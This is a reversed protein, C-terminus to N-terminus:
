KLIINWSPLRTSSTWENISFAMLPPLTAHQISISKILQTSGRLLFFM